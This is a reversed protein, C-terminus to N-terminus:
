SSLKGAPLRKPTTSTSIRHPLPGLTLPISVSPSFPSATLPSPPPIELPNSPHTSIPVPLDSLFLSSSSRLCGPGGLSDHNASTIGTVSTRMEMTLSPLGGFTAKGRTLIFFPCALCPSWGACWHLSSSASLSLCVAVALPPSYSAELSVAM